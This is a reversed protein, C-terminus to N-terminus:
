RTKGGERVSFTQASDQLQRDGKEVNEGYSCTDELSLEKMERLSLGRWPYFQLMYTMHGRGLVRLVVVNGIM